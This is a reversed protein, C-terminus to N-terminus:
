ADPVFRPGFDMEDSSVPRGVLHEHLFDLRKSADWELHALVRRMVGEVLRSRKQEPTLLLALALFRAVDREEEIELRPTLALAHVVAMRLAEEGFAEAQEPHRAQMRRVWRQVLAVDPPVLPAAPLGPYLPEAPDSPETPDAPPTM